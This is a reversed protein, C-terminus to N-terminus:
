PRSLPEVGSTDAVSLAMQVNAFKCISVNDFTRQFIPFFFAVASVIFNTEVPLDACNNFQFTQNGFILM